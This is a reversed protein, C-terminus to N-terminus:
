LLKLINNMQEEVFDETEKFFHAGAFGKNYWADAPSLESVTKFTLYVSSTVQKGTNTNTYIKQYKTVNELGPIGTNRVSAVKGEIPKGGEDKFISTFNQVRGKANVAKFKKIMSAMDGTPLDKSFPKKEFPVHAYKQGKKGKQVWPQGARSGVQVTKTSSLMKDKMNFPGWGDEIANPFQGELSILYTDDGLSDFKLGKLYDLRTTKLKSQASAVINAYAANALDKVAGKIEGIVQDSAQELQKQFGEANFDIIFEGDKAM